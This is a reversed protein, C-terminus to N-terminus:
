EVEESENPKSKAKEKEVDIAVRMSVIKDPNSVTGNNREDGKKIQDVYEMGSTVYGFVTYQGDLFNSNDTVIFFQSDASNPNASRAMSVAGRSHPMRSFEAPINKGSGGTGNGVPDGGQVMFGKIVRHFTLGDYFKQRSLEKIREVTKPAVEPLMEIVVVNGGKLTLYLTNDLKKETEKTMSIAPSTILNFSILGISGIVIALFFRKMNTSISM